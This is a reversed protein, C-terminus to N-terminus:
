GLGRASCVTGTVSVAIRGPRLDEIEPHLRPTLRQTQSAFAAPAVETV